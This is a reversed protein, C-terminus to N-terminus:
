NEYKIEKLRKEAKKIWKTWQKIENKGFKIVQMLQLAEENLIQQKTYTM